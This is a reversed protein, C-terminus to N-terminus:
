AEQVAEEQQRINRNWWYFGGALMLATFFAMGSQGAAILAHAPMLQDIVIEQPAGPRVHVAVTAQDELRPALSHPLSMRPQDLVGGDELPVRLGVYDLTVDVRNSREYDTVEAIAPTGHEWTQHLDYAVKAQDVTLFVMLLPFIWVIRAITKVTRSAVISRPTSLSYGSYCCVGGGFLQELCTAFVTHLNLPPM